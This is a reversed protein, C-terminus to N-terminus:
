NTLISYLDEFTKLAVDKRGIKVMGKKWKSGWELEYVYYSIWDSEDNMAIKLIAMMMNDVRSICFGGFDPDLKKFASHVNDIDDFLTKIEEMTKIFQEKSFNTRM